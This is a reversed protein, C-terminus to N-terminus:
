LGLLQVKGGLFSFHAQGRKSYECDGDELGFISLAARATM